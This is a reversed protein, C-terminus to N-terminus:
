ETYSIYHKPKSSAEIKNRIIDYKGSKTLENKAQNQNIIDIGASIWNWLSVAPSGVIGNIELFGPIYNKSKNKFVQANKSVIKNDVISKWFETDYREGQYHYSIFDMTLDYLRQVKHNYSYRNEETITQDFNEFLCEQCWLLLQVITTHISTAELPEVFTSALGLCMCNGEWFKESRGSEFNIWKIPKIKKGLYDEIEQQAEEKTIFNSDFVYGCGKRTQLPITWMWGASLATASTFLDPDEGEEYDLIFPMASNVTLVDKYSHWGIDLNKMLLRKFGTCDIYFDSDIKLGSKLDLSTITKGNTNVTEVVDDIVKVGDELCINKFFKGVKHGDFHFASSVTRDKNAFQQGIESALHMKEKGYKHYFYKFDTDELETWTPSADLPAFYSSGDGTWNKHNIGLKVTSDTERMFKDIDVQYDFYTGNLLDLMSGTSGEGAGIIGIESSEIVTINHQGPKSKCIFYAAIWGATGGGVITIKM